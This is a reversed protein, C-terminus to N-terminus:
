RVPAGPDRGVPRFLAEKRMRHIVKVDDVDYRTESWPDAINSYGRVEWFGPEDGTVFKLGRLWKASKYFYRQPVLMRVPGGHEAPLPTQEVTHALLVDDDRLADIPLSTTFGQECEMVVYRVSPRPQTRREVERFPVGRWHMGLRTWSTVCHIDCTVDVQPLSLLQAFTLTQPADVEGHIALSWTAPTLEAPVSGAHLVPWRPTVIQGPPIRARSSAVADM